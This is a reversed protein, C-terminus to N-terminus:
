GIRSRDISRDRSLIFGLILSSRSARGTNASSLKTITFIRNGVNAQLYTAHPLLRLLQVRTSVRTYYDNCCGCIDPDLRIYKLIYAFLFLPLRLFLSSTNLLSNFCCGRIDINNVISELNQAYTYMRLLAAQHNKSRRPM